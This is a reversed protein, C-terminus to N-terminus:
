LSIISSDVNGKPELINTQQAFATHTWFILIVTYCIERSSKLRVIQDIQVM